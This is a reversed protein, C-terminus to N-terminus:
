KTPICKYQAATLSLSVAARKCAERSEFWLSTREKNVVLYYGSKCAFVPLSVLMVLVVLYRKM